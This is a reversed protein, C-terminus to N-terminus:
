LQKGGEINLILERAFQRARTEKEEDMFPDNLNRQREKQSKCVLDHYEYAGGTSNGYM